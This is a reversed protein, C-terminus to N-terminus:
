PLPQSIYPLKLWSLLVQRKISFETPFLIKEHYIVASHVLSNVPPLFRPYTPTLNGTVGKLEPDLFRPYPPLKRYCEVWSVLFCPNINTLNGIVGEAGLFCHNALAYSGTVDEVWSVLFCLYRFTLNETVNEVWSSLFCPYILTELLVRLWLCWRLMVGFVEWFIIYVFLYWLSVWM